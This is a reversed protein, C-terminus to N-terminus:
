QLVWLSLSQQSTVTRLNTHIDVHVIRRAAQEDGPVVDGERREVGVLVAMLRPGVAVAVGIGGDGVAGVGTGVYTGM